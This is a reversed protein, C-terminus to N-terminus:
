PNPSYWAEETTSFPVNTMAPSNVYQAYLKLYKQRYDYHYGFRRLNDNANDVNLSFAIIAKIRNLRHRSAWFNEAEETEIPFNLKFTAM